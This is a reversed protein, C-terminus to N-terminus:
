QEFAATYGETAAALIRTDASRPQPHSRSFNPLPCRVARAPIEDPPKPSVRDTLTPAVASLLAAQATCAVFFTLFRWSRAARMEFRGRLAASKRVRRATDSIRCILTTADSM